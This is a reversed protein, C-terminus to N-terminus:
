KDRNDLYIPNTLALMVGHEDRLTALCWHDQGGILEWDRMGSLHAITTERLVGDVILGLQANGPSNDWRARVPVRADNTVDLADGMMVQGTPTSGTLVLSPGSSTYLHGNRVARLIEPESLEEAYVVNFAYPEQINGNRRGHNDTGATLALRHGQNLWDFALALADENNDGPSTWHENWVEVAPANGPMMTEYVWRCGTCHPDGVSRPHAIVFLGGRENVEQAIHNMQREGQAHDASRVRWDVWERLGLALAHGWFTTLELGGITLLEDSSSADMLTLGAVSNHDSLTCFDLENTKAWNLLDPIDWAADSHITHAHLDGRYWARGRRGIGRPAMVMPSGEVVDNTGAVDLEIPLPVGPMILHTDVVVTWGGADIRGARYGPTASVNNIIVEHREGHRHGAGRWGHPDFVSLTLMNKRNDVIWPSFSLRITIQTTSEPVTFSFPINQKADSSTLTRSFNTHFTEM